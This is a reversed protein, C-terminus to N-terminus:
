SIRGNKRLAMLLLEYFAWEFRATPPITREHQIQLAMWYDISM